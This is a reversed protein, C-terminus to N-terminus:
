ENSDEKLKVKMGLTYGISLADAEHEIKIKGEGINLIKPITSIMDDKTAKGNGTITKKVTSPVFEQFILNNEGALLQIIGSVMNTTIISSSKNRNGPKPPTFFLKECAIGIAKNDKILTQIRDRIYVLREPTSKKATTKIVGFDLVRDFSVVGSKDVKFRLVGYGCSALGQDIGIVVFKKM